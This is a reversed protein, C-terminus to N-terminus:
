FTRTFFGHGDQTATATGRKGISAVKLCYIDFRAINETDKFIASPAPFDPNQSLYSTKISSNLHVRSIEGDSAELGSIVNLLTTKGSGNKAIIAIKDGRSITLDINEFLIKHGYSKSVEELRLYEM